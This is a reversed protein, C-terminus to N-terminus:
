PVPPSWRHPWEGQAPNGFGTRKVGSSEQRGKASPCTGLWWRWPWRWSFPHNKQNQLKPLTGPEAPFAQGAVQQLLVQNSVRCTAERSWHAVTWSHRCPLSWLTWRVTPMTWGVTVSAWHTCHTQSWRSVLLPGWLGEASVLVQVTM